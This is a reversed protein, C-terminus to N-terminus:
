REYRHHLGGLVPRSIIKPGHCKRDVPRHIPADYDLAWHPRSENYYVIYEKLLARLHRENIPIVHNLCDRRLTSIVREVYSNQWPSRPATPRDIVGLSKLRECFVPGYSADRDRLLFKVKERGGLATEIQDALWEQNPHNTIEIHLIKRRALGLVVFGYLLRYTATVVVFLDAAATERLHNRLFVKWAPLIHRPPEYPGLSPGRVFRAVSSTSIQIGLKLM